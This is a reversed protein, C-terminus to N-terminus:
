IVITVIIHLYIFEKLRKSVCIYDKIIFIINLKNLKIIKDYSLSNEMNSRTKHYRSSFNLEKIINSKYIFSILCFGNIQILSFISHIKCLKVACNVKLMSYFIRIRQKEQLLFLSFQNKCDSYIDTYKYLIYAMLM